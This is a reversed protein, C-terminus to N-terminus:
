VHPHEQRSKSLPSIMRVTSAQPGDDGEAEIFQVETGIKLRNFGPRLVSHGHFYIEKGDAAELFGYGEDSYIKVVQGRPASERMKLAGSRRRAYDQLKRGAANFADRIAVYADKHAGEKSPEHTKPLLNEPEQESIKTARLPQAANNIVLEKAPLVLDIRIVFSKGKRHHRHPAEVVVRCGIIHWYFQELKRVQRRIQKEIM